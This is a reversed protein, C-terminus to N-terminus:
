LSTTGATARQENIIDDTHIPQSNNYLFEAFSARLAAIEQKSKREGDSPPQRIITELEARSLHDHKKRRTM